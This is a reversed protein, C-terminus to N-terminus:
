YKLSIGGRQPHPPIAPIPPSPGPHDPNYSVPGPAYSNYRVDHLSMHGLQNATIVPSRLSSYYRIVLLPILVAHVPLCRISVSATKTLLTSAQEQQRVRTSVLNVTLPEHRAAARNVTRTSGRGPKTARPLARPWPGRFPFHVKHILLRRPHPALEM